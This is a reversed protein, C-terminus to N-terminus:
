RRKKRKRNAVKEDLTNGWWIRGVKRMGAAGPDLSMLWGQKKSAM